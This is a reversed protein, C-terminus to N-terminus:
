ANTKTSTPSLSYTGDLNDHLTKTDDYYMMADVTSDTADPLGASDVIPIPLSSFMGAPVVGSLAGLEFMASQVRFRLMFLEANAKGGGTCAGLAASKPDTGSLCDRFMQSFASALPAKSDDCKTRLCAPWLQDALAPKSPDPQSDMVVNGGSRVRWS